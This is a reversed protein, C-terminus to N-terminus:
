RFVKVKPLAAGLDAIGRDTIKTGGVSLGQLKSLGKLHVLGADTLQTNGILLTRLETLGKLHALGADTVQTGDLNIDELKSLGALHALGADTVKTAGLSLVRLETLSRLQILGEDTTPTVSLDLERLGPLGHLHTLGADGVKTFGLGLSKLEKLDKLRALGANSVRTGKLGLHVLGTLGQLHALGADTMRTSDLTLVRLKSLLKLHAMGADTVPTNHLYLQQLGPLGQLRALFADTVRTNGLEVEIVPKGAAKDDVVVSGGLEKIAAIIRDRDNAGTKDEIRVEVELKGTALKSLTPDLKWGAHGMAPDGFVQEYQVSVKGTGYLAHPRGEPRVQKNSSESAPKLERKLEHLEIETGPALEVQAPLRAGLEYLRASDLQPVPKGSDDTVIPSHEIYPALYSVKVAQKGVNRIRIVLTIADGHHYVRKAGPRFGLGAQLGGFQKGWVTFGEKEQPQAAARELALSPQDSQGAAPKVRTWRLSALSPVGPEHECKPDTTWAGSIVARDKAAELAIRGFRFKGESWTGEYRRSATSWQVAIRGVDTGFTDTYTGEFVGKKTSQLEVTGWGDGRWTGSLDPMPQPDILEQIPTANALTQRVVIGGGWGLMGIVLMLVFASKLKSVLMAKLVGEALAAVKVSVLGTAVQGAAFCSAASITNSMVSDPVGASANRALAVALAGGSLAGGRRTLRKALLVRARALRSGVTGEPLGLHRAAEKRTKGELDCLVIVVRFIEPLRSLERDLRSQLDDGDHRSSGSGQSRNRPEPMETVQRERVQRKAVTARAKLATQHAVGYLWNALLEPAAISAAKRVFVLFAAQFADEADHYNRLVRRCVGWVMPGHRQVLAALAAEDHRCVYEELLQGDTLGDRLLMARRLRQIVGNLQGTAM